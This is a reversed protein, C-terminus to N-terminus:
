VNSNKVEKKALRQDIATKEDETLTATGSSNSVISQIKDLSAPMIPQNYNLRQDQRTWSTKM